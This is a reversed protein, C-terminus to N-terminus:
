FAQGFTLYWQASRASGQLPVAFGGRLWVPFFTLLAANANLEAGASVLTSTPRSPNGACSSYLQRQAASCTANGADSFLSLSLRDLFFPRLKSGRGILALPLRYELSASWAKYGIREDKNFGRVPLFDVIGGVSEPGTGTGTRVLGSGRLAVVQHAFGFWDISKYAAGSGFYENYSADNGSSPNLEFRRRGFTSARAGDELSIAFAPARDNGLGLGAVVGMMRDRPDRFRVNGLIGRHLEVGEVGLQLAASHRWRRNSLVSMLTVRDEREYSKFLDTINGASDRVAIRGTYDWDRVVDLNIVPNGLGAYSYNLDGAWRGHAFDYALDILYTHRNVADFGLTTIGVFTGLATDGFAVPLWFRPLASRLASFEHAASVKTDAYQVAPAKISDPRFAAPLSESQPDRWTAPDYPM